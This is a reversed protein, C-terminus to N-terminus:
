KQIIVKNSIIEQNSTKTTKYTTPTDLEKIEIAVENEISQMMQARKVEKKIRQDKINQLYDCFNLILLIPFAIPWVLAIAYVDERKKVSLGIFADIIPVGFFGIAYIILCTIIPFTM